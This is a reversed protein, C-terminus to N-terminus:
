ITKYIAEYSDAGDNEAPAVLGRVDMAVDGVGTELDTLFHIALDRDSAFPNSLGSFTCSYAIKSPAREQSSM